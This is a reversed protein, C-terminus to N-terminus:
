EVVEIVRGCTLMMDGYYPNRIEEESSLWAAGKNNDAMPCKQIYLAIEINELSMVIPIMNENLKIFHERQNELNGNAVIANLIQVSKSIHTQELEGLGSIDIAKLTSLTNKAFVTVQIANSAVFANKMQFYAKLVAEFEKQFAQPLKIKLNAISKTKSNEQMGLHGQHGTMTEGGSKNMMSKKGQLQAAADVTFTGNTVIEDGNKLGNTIIYNEANRNGITIERMEFVPENPNTKLYVLSREGTWMVASAPVSIMEGNMKIDGKLKGTVFMGPKFIDDTNKLTARVTVTRTANDLMPDIFSAM